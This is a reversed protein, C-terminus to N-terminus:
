FPLIDQLKMFKIVDVSVRYEDVWLMNHSYSGMVFHDVNVYGSWIRGTIRKSEDHVIIQSRHQLFQLVPLM